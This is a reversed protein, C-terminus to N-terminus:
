PEIAPLRKGGAMRALEGHMRAFEGKFSELVQKAGGEDRDKYADSLEVLARRLGALAPEPAGQRRLGRVVAQLDRGASPLAATGPRKLARNVLSHGSAAYVALGEINAQPQGPQGAPAYGAGNQPPLGGGGRGEKPAFKGSAPTGRGGRPHQQERFPM